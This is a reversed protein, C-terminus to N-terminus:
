KHPKGTLKAYSLRSKGSKAVAAIFKEAGKEKRNNYRYGFETTYRHLHEPSVYHYIGIIGRKFISWFNEINNTHFHKDTKYNGETHKVKIHNYQKELGNYSRYADTILVCEDDVCSEIIPHIIESDTNPVVFTMVKGGREVLGVVPTKDKTARGQSNEIKKNKHRNKNKGGVYTEDVEVIGKLMEPATEKFMERIRHLLHWATKQTVQLQESLQVSSIGKKSTIILFIAAYWTRLSIKSAHFITGTTVTFKKTCEKDACRYEPVGKKISKVSRSKTVYVHTSGCHPCVPVGNWLRETLFAYCTKEEKFFDNLELLSKFDQVMDSYLYVSEGM